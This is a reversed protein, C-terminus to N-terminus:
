FTDREITFRQPAIEGSLTVRYEGPEVFRNMQADITEINRKRITFKIEKTEGPKLNTRKFGELRVNTVSTTSAKQLYLLAVEDSTRKGTNTVKFRVIINKGKDTDVPELTLDSYAVTTYSLGHGSPYLVKGNTDCIAATLRSGPSYVGRIVETILAPNSEKPFWAVILASVSSEVLPDIAFPVKGSLVLVVPKGLASLTKLWIKAESKEADEADWVVTIVDYKRANALMKAKEAKNYYPLSLMIRKSNNAPLVNKENKLLVLSERCAQMAVAQREKQVQQRDSQTTGSLDPYIGPNLVGSEEVIRKFAARYRVDGEPRRDVGTVPCASHLGKSMEIGLEAVLYPSDGYNFDPLAVSGEDTRWAEQGIIQGIRKTLSRNWTQGIGLESPFEQAQSKAVVSLFLFVVIIKRM